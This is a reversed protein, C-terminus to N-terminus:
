LAFEWPFNISPALRLAVAILGCYRRHPGCTSTCNYDLELCFHLLLFAICKLEWNTLKAMEDLAGGWLHAPFYLECGSSSLLSSHSWTMVQSDSLSSFLHLLPWDPLFAPPWAQNQQVQLSSSTWRKSQTLWCPSSTPSVGQFGAPPKKTSSAGAKLSTVSNSCLKIVTKLLFLLFCMSVANGM